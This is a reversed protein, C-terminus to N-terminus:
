QFDQAVALKYADDSRETTTPARTPVAPKYLMAEFSTRWEKTNPDQYRKLMNFMAQPIADSIGFYSRADPIICCLGAFGGPVDKEVRFMQILFNNPPRKNRMYFHTYMNVMEVMMCLLCPSQRPPSIGTQLFIAEEAPTLCERYVMGSHVVARDSPENAHATGAVCGSPGNVCPRMDVRKNNSNGPTTLLISTPTRAMRHMHEVTFLPAEPVERVPVSRTSSSSSSSSSNKEEHYVQIAMNNNNVDSMPVLAMSSSPIEASSSPAPLLPLRPGALPTPLFADQLPRQPMNAFIPALMAMGLTDIRPHDVLEDVLGLRIAMNMQSRLLREEEQYARSAFTDRLNTRRKEADHSVNKCSATEAYRKKWEELSLTQPVDAETVNTTPRPKYVPAPITSAPQMEVDESQHAAARNQSRREVHRSSRDNGSTNSFDTEEVNDQVNLLLLTILNSHLPSLDIPEDASQQKKKEEVVDEMPVAGLATQVQAFRTSELCGQLWPLVAEVGVARLYEIDWAAMDPNDELYRWVHYRSTWTTDTEPRQFSVQLLTEVLSREDPAISHELEHLLELHARDSQKWEGSQCLQRIRLPLPKPPSGYWHYRSTIRACETSRDLSSSSFEQQLLTAVQPADDAECALNIRRRAWDQRTVHPVGFENELGAFYTAAEDWTAYKTSLFTIAKEQTAPAKWDMAYMHAPFLKTKAPQLIFAQQSRPESPLQPMPLDMEGMDMWGFTQRLWTEEKQRSEVHAVQDLLARIQARNKKWKDNNALSHLRERFREHATLVRTTSM